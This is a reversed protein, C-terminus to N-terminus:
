SRLKNILNAVSKFDVIPVTEVLKRSLLLGTKRWFGNVWKETSFLEKPPGISCFKFSM